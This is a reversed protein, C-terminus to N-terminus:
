WGTQVIKTKLKLCAFNIINQM